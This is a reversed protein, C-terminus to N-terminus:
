PEGDDEYRARRRRPWVNRGAMKTADLAGPAEDPRARWWRAADREGEALLAADLVAMMDGDRVAARARFLAFSARRMHVRAQERHFARYYYTM